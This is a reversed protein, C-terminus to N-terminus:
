PAAPVVEYPRMMEHDEHELIHCHWVYLGLIDFHAILRTIEGPYSVITDKFGHEWAEPPRSAPGGLVEGMPTRDVVQFQVLHLHIPHADETFNHIEWIETTNLVPKETIEDMWQLPNGSGDENVTGLAAQAPTWPAGNDCDLDVSGDDNVVALVTASEKENLSVQRTNDAPGLPSLPPLVLEGTAPNASTDVGNLRGIVFKMVQGTTNPDSSAFDQDPVGGGFPEDGGVNILYVEAGVPLGTFDVIVDAREAPGMLLMDLRVPAPLLGGDSGIQWFPLAPTSPRATPDGMVLQPMLFRSGCANLLRFRYRRPEVKLKPWTKGNVIIANGFFEPNWIPAIDSPGNCAADPMFPIRFQEPLLGEFFARNDPYFLSGDDNFTRDQIVIPIEYYRAGPKDGAKPAPKPLRLADEAADRIIYFGALGAYVNARTMGLAHDHFWLTTPRQDNTYEYWASGPPAPLASTYHTGKKYYGAPINSARPLYWAEPYGDSHPQVHAGHLHTVLPVPGAYPTPDMGASDPPGPPNAWHLTQDIPLLHPLFKPKFSLPDDVLQNSWLVQVRHNVRTEITLSPSHFSSKGPACPLETSRGYGWVTTMPYGTPLVQQEFQRAGILYQMGKKTQAAPPLVPPIFLPEVYKPITTPDLPAAGVAGPSQLVWPVALVCGAAVACRSLRSKQLM